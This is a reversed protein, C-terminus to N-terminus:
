KASLYDLVVAGVAEAAVLMSKEDINFKPHHHPYVKGDQPAAGSYIFTSPLAKAYFAFDESPPQAECEEVGKVDALDANQITTAVYKTFEPDNYLAPYDKSFEFNCKVGFTAELGEVIHQLAEEIRDRTADTLARVDGELTVKDKIVNFQGKGDFSGITVVGTEFPNLRRSVITQATTVFNAGVVIADNATHPSSGHGGEGQITLKFYSRGTQVNEPRYYVKGPEMNTMVHTGLVHDVGELVGDEIMGKAGGPPMEEAPQHIVVVKGNFQDKMEILTEALILM